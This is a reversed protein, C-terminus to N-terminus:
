GLTSIYLYPILQVATDGVVVTIGVLVVVLINTIKAHMMCIQSKLDLFASRTAPICTDHSVKLRRWDYDEDQKTLFCFFLM